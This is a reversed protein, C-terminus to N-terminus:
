SKISNVLFGSLLAEIVVRNEANNIKKTADNRIEMPFIFELEKSLSLYM